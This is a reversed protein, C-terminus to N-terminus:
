ISINDLYILPEKLVLRSASVIEKIFMKYERISENATKTYDTIRNFIGADSNQKRAMRAVDMFFDFNQDSLKKKIQEYRKGIRSENLRNAYILHTAEFHIFDSVQTIDFVTKLINYLYNIRPDFFNYVYMDNQPFFKLGLAKYRDYIRTGEFISLRNMFYHFNSAEDHTEHLFVASNELEQFTTEPNFNIYGLYPSIGNNYMIDIAKASDLIHKEPETRKGLKKLAEVDGNEVGLFVKFVSRAFRPMMKCQDAQIIQQPSTMIFMKLGLESAHDLISGARTIGDTGFGLFTDDTVAVHWRNTCHIAELERKVHVASRARYGDPYMGPTTCFDCGNSVCGRSTVLFATESKYNDHDLIPLTDLDQVRNSINDITLPHNQKNVRGLFDTFGNEIEGQWIFDINRYQEGLENSDLSKSHFTADHGGIGILCKHKITDLILRLEHRSSFFQDCLLIPSKLANIVNSIKNITLNSEVADIIKTNYGYYRLINDLYYIGPGPIYLWNPLFQYKKRSIGLHLLTINKM